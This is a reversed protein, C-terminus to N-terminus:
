KRAGAAFVQAISPDKKLLRAYEADPLAVLEEYTYKAKQQASQESKQTGTGQARTSKLLLTKGLETLKREAFEKVSRVDNKPRVKTRGDSDEFPEMFPKLVMLALEPDTCMTGLEALLQYDVVNTEFRSKWSSIESDKAAMEDLHSKRIADIDGRAVAEARSKEDAERKAKDRKAIIEKKEAESSELKKALEALQAQVRDLEAKSVTESSGGDPEVGSSGDPNAGNSNSDSM